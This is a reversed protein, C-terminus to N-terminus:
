FEKDSIIQKRIVVANDQPPEVDFNDEDSDAFIEQLLKNSVKSCSSAKEEDGGNDDSM